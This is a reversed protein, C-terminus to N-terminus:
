PEVFDAIVQYAVFVQTAQCGASDLIDALVVSVPTGLNVRSGQTDAKSHLTVVSGQIDLIGRYDVSVVTGRCDVSAPTARSVQSDRTARNNLLIVALGRIGQYGVSDPIDRCAVSGRTVPYDAIAQIVLPRVSDRTDM